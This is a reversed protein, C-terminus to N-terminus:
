GRAERWARTWDSPPEKGTGTADSVEVRFAIGEADMPTGDPTRHSVVRVDVPEGNQDADIIWTESGVALGVWWDWAVKQLLEYKDVDEVWPAFAVRVRYKLEMDIVHTPEAAKEWWRDIEPEPPRPM